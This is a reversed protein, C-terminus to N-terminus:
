ISDVKKWNNNLLWADVSESNQKVSVYSKGNGYQDSATTVYYSGKYYCVYGQWNAWKNNNEESAFLLYERTGKLNVVNSRWYLPESIKNKTYEPMNAYLHEWTAGSKKLEPLSYGYHSYLARISREGSASPNKNMYQNMYAIIDDITKTNGADQDESHISCVLTDDSVSITGGAPCLTEGAPQYKALVTELTVDEGSALRAQYERLITTRNQLCVTARAKEVYGLFQPIAIAILLAIIAIVIMMEILTFGKNRRNGNTKM